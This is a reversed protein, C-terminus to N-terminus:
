LAKVIFNNQIAYIRLLCKVKAALDQSPIAKKNSHILLKRRLQNKIKLIKLANLCGLCSIYMISVEKRKHMARPM